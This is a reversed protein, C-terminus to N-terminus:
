KEAEKKSEIIKEIRDIENLYKDCCMIHYDLIVTLSNIYEELQEVTYDKHEDNM